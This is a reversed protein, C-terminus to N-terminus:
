ASLSRLVDAGVAAEPNSMQSSFRLRQSQQSPDVPLPRGPAICVNLQDGYYGKFEARVREHMCGEELDPSIKLISYLTEPKSQRQLNRQAQRAALCEDKRLLGDVCKNQSSQEELARAEQRNSSADKPAGM